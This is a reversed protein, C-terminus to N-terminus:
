AKDAASVPMGATVTKYLNYIFVVLSALYVVGGFARAHWYPYLRVMTEMFSYHLSGDPNTAALMAAQQVGAIWMTISFILQGAVALWFHLNALGVSYIERGYLRPVTYYIAAFLVLSVWGLTGMHVHGPVWDTYHIFASFTRV